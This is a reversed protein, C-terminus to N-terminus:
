LTGVILSTAPFPVVDVVVLLGEALLLVLL